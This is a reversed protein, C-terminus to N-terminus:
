LAVVRNRVLKKANEEVDKGAGEQDIIMETVIRFRSQERVDKNTKALLHNTSLLISLLLFNGIFRFRLKSM